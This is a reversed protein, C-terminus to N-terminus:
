ISIFTDFKFVIARTNAGVWSEDEFGIDAGMEQALKQIKPFEDKLYREVKV